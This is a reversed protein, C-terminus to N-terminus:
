QSITVFNAFFIWQRYKFINEELIVLDIYALNPLLPPEFKNLHRAVDM